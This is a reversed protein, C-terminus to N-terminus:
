WSFIRTAFHILLPIVSYMGPLIFSYTNEWNKINTLTDKRMHTHAEKEKKFRASALNKEKSCNDKTVGGGRIKKVSVGGGFSVIVIQNQTDSKWVKYRM